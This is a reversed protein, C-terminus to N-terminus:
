LVEGTADTARWFQLVHWALENPLRFVRDVIPDARRTRRVRARGRMVLSRLRLVDKRAQRRYAAWTGGAARIADVLARCAIWHGNLALGPSRWAEYYDLIEEVPILDPVRPAPHTHLSGARNHSSTISDLPAGARLLATVIQLAVFDPDQSFACIAWALPDHQDHERLTLGADILLLVYERIRINEAGGGMGGIMVMEFPSLGDGRLNVDAGRAILTRALQANEDRSSVNSAAALLLTNEQNESFDNVDNGADLWALVSPVDGDDAAQMIESPVIM